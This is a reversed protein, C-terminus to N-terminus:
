LAGQPGPPMFFGLRLTGLDTSNVVGDGNFDADADASFFVARFLGLDAANVIGDGNLDADCANGFGDGNSDRQNPNAVLTCNDAVDPVGDSDADTQYVHVAGRFQFSANIDSNLESALIVGPGFAVADGFLRFQPAPTASPSRLRASLAWAPDSRRYVFVDGGFSDELLSAGNILQSNSAAITDGRRDVAMAEWGGFWNGGIFSDIQDGFEVDVLSLPAAVPGNLELISVKGTRLGGTDTGCPEGVTLTPGNGAFGGFPRAPCSAPDFTESVIQQIPTDTLGTGDERYVLTIPTRLGTLDFTAGAVGFYGNALTAVAVGFSEIGPPASVTELLTWVGGILRYVHLEGTDGEFNNLESIVALDAAANLAIHGNQTQGGYSGFTKPVPATLVQVPLWTDGSPALRYAQVKGAFQFAPTDPMPQPDIAGGFDQDNAVGILLEGGAAVIGAGFRDGVPTASTGARTLKEVLEYQGGVLRYVYVAGDQRLENDRLTCERPAAIFLWDQWTTKSAGFTDGLGSCIQGNGILSAVPLRADGNELMIDDFFVSTQLAVASPSGPGAGLPDHRLGLQAVNALIQGVTRGNDGGAQLDESALSLAYIRWDTATNAITVADSSIVWDVGDGFDDFLTARLEVPDGTGSHRARFFIRTVGAATYDGTFAPNPAVGLAPHLVHFGNNPGASAAVYNLAFDAIGVYGADPVVSGVGTSWGGVSPVFDM